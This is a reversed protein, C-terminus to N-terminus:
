GSLVEIIEEKSLKDKDVIRCGTKILKHYIQNNKYATMFYFNNQHDKLYDNRIIKNLLEIGNMEDMLFDCLVVDVKNNKIYELADNPSSFGRTDFNDKLLM